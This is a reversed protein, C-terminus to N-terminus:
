QPPMAAQASGARYPFRAFISAIARDAAASREQATKQVVPGIAAGTWVLHNRAADVLDVTLTGETYRRIQTQDYWVPFGYYSRARYNYFYGFDSRPVSYFDTRERVIGQFNVRLGPNVPDFTYGRAEMERRISARIQDTLYTSYGSEEMALPAYFAYSRYLSFDARPDMDTSVRPTTACAAILVLALVSWAVRWVRLGPLHVPRTM